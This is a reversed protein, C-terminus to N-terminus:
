EIPHRSWFDGVVEDFEAVFSADQKFNHPVGEMVHVEAHPIGRKLDNLLRQGTIVDTEDGTILLTPAKINSLSATVDHKLSADMFALHADKYDRMTAWGEALVDAANTNLFEPTFCLSAALQRYAEFGSDRLLSQMSEIHFKLMADCRAWGEHLVLSAVLTPAQIAFQMVTTAGMGGIGIVHWKEVGLGSIAAILDKAYLDTAHSFGKSSESKGTDRYHFSTVRRNSLARPLVNTYHDPGPVAWGTAALVAEGSGVHEVHIKVTENSM